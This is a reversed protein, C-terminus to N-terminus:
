APQVATFVDFGAPAPAITADDRNAVLQHAIAIAYEYIDYVSDDSDTDLSITIPITVTHKTM